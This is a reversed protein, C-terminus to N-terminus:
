VDEVESIYRGIQWQRFKASDKWAEARAESSIAARLSELDEWYMTSILWIKDTTEKAKTEAAYEEAIPLAITMRKLKPFKWTMPIHVDRYHKMFADPDDPRRYHVTFQWM